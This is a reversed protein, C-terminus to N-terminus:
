LIPSFLRCANEALKAIRPRSAFVHADIEVSNLLDQRYHQELEAVAAPDYILCNVEFNLYLSRNDFNATGVSAWEGDVLLFKSHMMGATYQYVKVGAALLETWYYRAALFPLWKDPRFLGLFRVDLGARGALILADLLGADPVFYPSAIWVRKRARLIGAVYTERIVKYTSDPGSHVIQLPTSGASPTPSGYKDDDLLEDAAFYWDEIFVRQLSEVAPGDIQMHTDRWPGFHRDKGLYEDGINLGGTFATRGDAVLIKRHNRLNIRMRYLPNLIPLFAAVKGGAARLERHLKSSLVYSGVADYLFRVEVGRRAAETLAALFRRGSEDPQFIFFELHVHRTATHIADLMADYAAAGDNFIRVRNGPQVPFGDPHDGLRAIMDWPPELAFDAPLARVNPNSKARTTQRKRRKRQLPRHVVQIGFLFFLIVGFLPMMIVTLSWAIASMTERKTQLIWVLTGLTLLLYLILSYGAVDQWFRDLFQTFSM